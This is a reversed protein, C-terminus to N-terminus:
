CRCGETQVKGDRVIKGQKLLEAYQINFEELTMNGQGYEWRLDQEEQTTRYPKQRENIPM